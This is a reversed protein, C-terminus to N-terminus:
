SCASQLPAPRGAPRFPHRASFRPLPDVERVVRPGAPPLLRGVEGFHRALLGRQRDLEPKGTPAQNEDTRIAVNPMHPASIPKGVVTERVSTLVSLPLVSTRSFVTRSTIPPAISSATSQIVRSALQSNSPRLLATAYEKTAISSTSFHIGHGATTTASENKAKATPRQLSSPKVRNASSKTPKMSRHSFVISVIARMITATTIATDM